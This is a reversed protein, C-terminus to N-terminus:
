NISAPRPRQVTVSRLDILFNGAVKQVDAASRPAVRVPRRIDAASDPM